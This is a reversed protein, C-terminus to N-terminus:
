WAEGCEGPVGCWALLGVENSGLGETGHAEHAPKKKHLLRTFSSGSRLDLSEAAGDLWCALRARESM